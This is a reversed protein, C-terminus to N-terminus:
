ASGEAHRAVIRRVGEPTLGTAQALERLSAGAERGAVIAANRQDTIQRQRECIRALAELDATM